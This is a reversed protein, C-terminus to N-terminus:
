EGSKKIIFIGDQFIRIDKKRIRTAQEINAATQGVDEIEKGELEIFENNITLKVGERIKAYRPTKEGAFNKIILRNPEQSVNIPFHKYVIKLKYKHGETIGRIMNKIHATISGLYAKQKKRTENERTLVLTSNEQKTKIGGLKFTRTTEGLPGKVIISNQEIKIEVNEPITLDYKIM